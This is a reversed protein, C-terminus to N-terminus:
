NSIVHCDKLEDLILELCISDHLVSQNIYIYSSECRCILARSDLGKLGVSMIITSYERASKTSHTM